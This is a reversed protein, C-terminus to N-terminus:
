LKVATAHIQRIDRLEHLEGVRFWARRGDLFEVDAYVAKNERDFCPWAERRNYEVVRTAEDPM